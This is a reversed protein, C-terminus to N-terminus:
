SRISCIPGFIEEADNIADSFTDIRGTWSSIETRFKEEFHNLFKKVLKQLEPDNKNSFVAASLGTDSSESMIYYTGHRVLNLVANEEGTAELMFTSVASLASSILELDVKLNKEGFKYHFIPMGADNIVLLLFFDLPPFSDSIWFLPLSALVALGILMFANIILAIETQLFIWYSILFGIVIGLGLSAFGLSSYRGISDM